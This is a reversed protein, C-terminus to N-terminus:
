ITLSIDSSFALSMAPKRARVRGVKSRLELSPTSRDRTTTLFMRLDCLHSAYTLCLRGFDFYACRYLDELSVFQYGFPSLGPERRIDILQFVPAPAWRSITPIWFCCFPWCLARLPPAHCPNLIARATRARIIM